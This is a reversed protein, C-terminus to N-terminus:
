VKPLLRVLHFGLVSLVSVPSGSSWVSQFGALFFSTSFFIMSWTSAGLDGHTLVLEHANGTDIVSM